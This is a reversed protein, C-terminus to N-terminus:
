KPRTLDQIVQDDIKAARMAALDGRHGCARCTAHSWSIEMNTSHCAVCMRGEDFDALRRKMAAQRSKWIALGIVAAVLGLIGKTM